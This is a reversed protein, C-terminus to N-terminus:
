RESELKGAQELIWARAAKAGETATLRTGFSELKKMTAAIREESVESVIRNVAPHISKPVGQGFVPVALLLCFTLRM